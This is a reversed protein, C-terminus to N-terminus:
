KSCKQDAASPTSKLRHHQDEVYLLMSVKIMSKDENQEWDSRLYQALEKLRSGIKRDDKKLCSCLKKVGKKMNRKQKIQKYIKASASLIEYM